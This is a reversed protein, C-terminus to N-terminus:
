SETIGKVIHNFEARKASESTIPVDNKVIDSRLTSKDIRLTKGLVSTSSQYFEALVLYDCTQKELIFSSIKGDHGSIRITDFNNIVWPVAKIIEKAIPEEKKHEIEPNEGDGKFM